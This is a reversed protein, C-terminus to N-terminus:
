TSHPVKYVGDVYKIDDGKYTKIFANVYDEEGIKNVSRNLAENLHLM